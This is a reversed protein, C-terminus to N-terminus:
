FRKQEKSGLDGLREHVSLPRNKPSQEREARRKQATTNEKSERQNLGSRLNVKRTQDHQNKTNPLRASNFQKKPSNTVDIVRRCDAQPQIEEESLPRYVLFTTHYPSTEETYNQPSVQVPNPRQSVLVRLNSVNLPNVTETEDPYKCGQVEFPYASIMMQYARTQKFKKFLAHNAKIELCNIVKMWM